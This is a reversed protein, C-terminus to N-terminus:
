FTGINDAMQIAAKRLDDPSVIHYRDFVSRTRHGTISMAVREPIGRNVMERVASRRLDHRLMGPYGAKLCATRWAKKFDQVRQGKHRGQLHPFLYPTVHGMDRDLARVRDLQAVLLAKLRSTLYVVRGEEGKTTGPDIRLTGMDLDLQRRELTLVESRIRWGYTYAVAVAVQLDPRLHRKVVEFQEREFFGQRPSREKLRRIVLLRALKDQEYALRLLRSLTALERNITGNAAGQMQRQLVFARISAPGVAELRQGAFFTDLHKLRYGAEEMDRSETAQYHERLDQAAEDYGIVVIPTAPQGM